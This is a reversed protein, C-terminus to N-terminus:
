VNIKCKLREKKLQDLSARKNNNEQEWEKINNNFEREWKELTYLATDDSCNNHITLRLSKTNQLTLYMGLLVAETHKIDSTFAKVKKNYDRTTNAKINKLRQKIINNM